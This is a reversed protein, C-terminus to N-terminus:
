TARVRFTRAPDLCLGMLRESYFRGGILLARPSTGEHRFGLSEYLAIARANGAHVRLNLKRIGQAGALAIAAEAMRRGIGRGWHEADVTLGLCARHRLRPLDPRVVSLMSVVKRGLTGKLVFGRGARRLRALYAAQGAVTRVREGPGAALFDSQGAARRVHALLRGADGPGAEAVVLHEGRTLLVRCPLTM